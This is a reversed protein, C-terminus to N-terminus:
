ATKRRCILGLAMLAGGLLALSTPEPVPTAGLTVASDMDRIGSTGGSKGEFDQYAFAYSTSDTNWGMGQMYSASPVGGRVWWTNTAAGAAGTPDVSIAYVENAVLQINADAGSPTLTVVVSSPAATYTFQDGTQLLNGGFNMQATTTPYSGMATTVSALTGLDYLEINFTFTAGTLVLQINQLYGGGAATLQAPTFYFSEALAGVANVGGLSSNAWSDNDDTTGGSGTTPAAGTMFQPSGIWSATSTQSSVLQAQVSTALALATLIALTKIHTKM